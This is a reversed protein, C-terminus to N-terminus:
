YATVGSLFMFFVTFFCVRPYQVDDDIYLKGFLRVFFDKAFFSRNHLFQLLNGHKVASHTPRQEHQFITKKIPSALCLLTIFYFHFEEVKRRTSNLQKAQFSPLASVRYSNCLTLKLYINKQM